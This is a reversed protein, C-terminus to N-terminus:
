FVWGSNGSCSETLMWIQNPHLIRGTSGDTNCVSWLGVAVALLPANHWQTKWTYSQIPGTELPWVVPSLPRAMVPIVHVGWAQMNVGGVGNSFTLVGVDLQICCRCISGSVPKRITCHCALFGTRCGNLISDTLMVSQYCVPHVLQSSILAFTHGAAWSEIEGRM